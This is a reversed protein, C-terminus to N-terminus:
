LRAQIAAATPAERSPDPKAASDPEQAPDSVVPADGRGEAELAEDALRQKLVPSTPIRLVLERCVEDEARAINIDRMDVLTQASNLAIDIPDVAPMPNVHYRDGDFKLLVRDSHTSVMRGQVGVEEASVLFLYYSEYHTVMGYVVGDVHLWQGLQHPDVQALKKGNDIGHEELVADVAIPNLVVFERQALYGVMDGRLRQADTWAWRRRQEQNRVTVPMKDVIYQASGEDLFPLVALREPPDELYHKSVKLNLTSPDLEVLRDWWTKKGHSDAYYPQEFFPRSAADEYSVQSCGAIMTMTLLATLFLIQRNDLIGM